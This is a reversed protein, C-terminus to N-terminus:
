TSKKTQLPFFFSSSPPCAHARPEFRAPLCRIQCAPLSDPLCAAFRAPLCAARKGYPIGNLPRPYGNLPSPISKNNAANDDDDGNFGSAGAAVGAVNRQTTRPRRRCLSGRPLKACSWSAAAAGRMADQPFLSLSSLSFRFRFSFLKEKKRSRHRRFNNMKKEM